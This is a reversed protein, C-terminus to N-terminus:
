GAGPNSPVLRVRARRDPMGSLSLPRVWRGRRAVETPSFSAMSIGLFSLDGSFGWIRTTPWSPIARPPPPSSSERSLDRHRSRGARAIDDDVADAQSVLLHGPQLPGIAPWHLVAGVPVVASSARPAASTPWREAEDM